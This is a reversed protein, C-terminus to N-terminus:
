KNLQEEDELLLIYEDILSKLDEYSNLSNCRGRYRSSYALGTIYHPAIGRMQRMAAVEGYLDILDRAHKLCMEFREKYSVHYNEIGNLYNDIEKILFPNGVVGRGIMIADCDDLHKIADEVTKIDGNGIVPITLAEKVAKIYSWDAEGEYMQSRTRGHVAIASAGAAEIRKAFNVVDIEEKTFGLRMKVTVPKKVNKVINEVIEVALDPNRLLASGAGTKIVKTVPCGMNIDIIDAKTHEDIYKAAKVMSDVESGFIQMVVPHYRDDVECMAKTKQNDYVIAKDSVMESYVLGAGNDFCLDRFAGNSIGAMPAIVIRNKIEIDRIKWM